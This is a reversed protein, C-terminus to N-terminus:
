PFSEGAAQDVGAWVCAGCFSRGVPAPSVLTQARRRLYEEFDPDGELVGGPANYRAQLEAWVDPFALRLQTANDTDACRMAALLLPYFDGTAALEISAEYAYRGIM